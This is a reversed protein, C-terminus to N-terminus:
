RSDVVLEMLLGDHWRDGDADREYSRMVGVAEFGAKEYARIAAANDLAPDITVRHHGRDDILHRVTRRVVETGLGRGRLAPDLFVDITAHRYRPEPEEWFEILGAVAGDLEITWRTAEPEEWPFDPEVEGWWRRVAETRRIRILEPTDGAALPRLRLGELPDQEPVGDM